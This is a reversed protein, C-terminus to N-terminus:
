HFLERLKKIRREMIFKRRELPPIEQLKDADIDLEQVTMEAVKLAKDWGSLMIKKARDASTVIPLIESTGNAIANMAIKLKTGIRIEEWYSLLDHMATASSLAKEWSMPLKLRKCFGGSMKRGAEEHGHHHPYKRPDTALKGIDHFFGCFRAIPDSTMESVRELVQLSHTLLDGEPHYELPGAPVLPMKFLEPLYNSGVNFEYMRRFFKAPEKNAFAKQMERTFREVPISEMLSWDGNQILGEAEDDMKWGDSEFRFGRFIRIPDAIFSSRSCVKLRREKLTTAGDLPDFIKGAMDMAIANASFDRSELNKVLNEPSEVLTVEINGFLPDNKFMIPKTTKGTVPNFGNSRFFEETLTSVIDIDKWPKNLLLDRVIGGVIFTDTTNNGAFLDNFFTFLRDTKSIEPKMPYTEKLLTFVITKGIQPTIKSINQLAPMIRNM